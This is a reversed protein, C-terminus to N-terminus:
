AQQAPQEKEAGAPMKYKQEIRERLTEQLYQDYPNDPRPLSPTFTGDKFMSFPLLADASVDQYQRQQAQIWLEAIDNMNSQGQPVFEPSCACQFMAELYDNQSYPRHRDRRIHRNTMEVLSELNAGTMFTTRIDGSKSQKRATEAIRDFLARLPDNVRSDGQLVNVFDTVFLNNPALLLLKLRLIEALDNRSPMFAFFRGSIRGDRLLEPPLNTINNATIFTLVNATRNQMWDLLLSLMSLKVEHTHDNISFVKEIEDMLMVCAGFASIRDLYRRLRAETGGFDSSQIQSIDFQILPVGLRRATEKAMATKGTGPVGCLLVGKPAPTGLEQAVVPNLYDTRREELWDSYAGLGAVTESQAYPIFRISKDKEAEKRKEAAIYSRYDTQDNNGRLLTCLRGQMHTLANRVQEESLGVFEAAFAKLESDVFFTKKRKEEEARVQESLILYIDNESIYEDRILEIEGAFGDPILLQPSAILLYADAYNEPADLFAKILYSRTKEDYVQFDTITLVAPQLVTGNTLKVSRQLAGGIGQSTYIRTLACCELNRCLAKYRNKTESQPTKKLKLRSWLATSSDLANAIVSRNESQFYIIRRGPSMNSIATDMKHVSDRM